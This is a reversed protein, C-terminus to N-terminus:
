RVPRFRVLRLDRGERLAKGYRRVPGERPRAPAPNARARSGTAHPIRERCHRRGLEREPRRTFPATTFHSELDGTESLSRPARHLCALTAALCTGHACCRARRPAACLACVTSNA